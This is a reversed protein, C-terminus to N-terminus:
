VHARGIQVTVPAAPPEPSDAPPTPRPRLSVIEALVSLAVEDPTRAGIDLGAPTHVRAREAPPLELAELVAAGRRASAVLGIYPVGADLAARLLGPEDRGHSAIVVATTDPQIAIRAAPGTVAYGLHGALDAVARAIPAEGQVALLPPPLIPELFIELSGGSLCPNHVTVRGSREPEPDPSPQPTIRLLVPQAVELAHLAQVTVTAEACEGGVFGELSGDALVIASAGPKASTPPEARVVTAAVFPVRGSRLQEAREHLSHRSDTSM